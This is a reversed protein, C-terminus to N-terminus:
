VPSNEAAEAIQYYDRVFESTLITCSIERMDLWTLVEKISDRCHEGFQLSEQYREFFRSHWREPLADRHGLVGLYVINAVKHYDALRFMREWDLRKFVIHLADQRIISAVIGVLTRGEFLLRNMNQVM